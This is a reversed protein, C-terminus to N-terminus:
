VSLRIIVEYICGCSLERELHQETYSTKLTEGREKLQFIFSSLKNPHEETEDSISHLFELCLNNRVDQKMM